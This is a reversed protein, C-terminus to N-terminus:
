PKKKARVARGGDTNVVIEAVQGADDLVFRGTMGPDNTFFATASEPYIDIEPGRVPRAVLHDERRAITLADVPGLVYQGVYRDLTATDVQAAEREPPLYDPWGYIVAIGNTIEAALRGGADGNTMVAAGQGGDFLAVLLCSFGRNQGGHSFRRANGEGAIFPGLGVAGGNQPTLMQEVMKQGLVKQPKGQRALQIEIAYRALDSPTTWLGAAGMEPYVNWKGAIPKGSGDHATAAQGRRGPPLPQEYTSAAMGVPGLVTDRMLEPFPRGTVDSLLLQEVTTGGGSYRFGHGPEKDVRVPKTNAPSAGDLIQPVTPLAADTAYGPFGHITLGATHSLIGRLDVAHKATFENEPVKWSKLDKNVDRDLDLVGADVLKLTAVATVPKSISAAQFLTDPTVPTGAEADAVGYGKAWDIKYDHIVAVSVGPVHHQAMREAISWPTTQGKVRVTQTLHTEVAAIREDITAPLGTARAAAVISVVAAFLGVSLVQRFAARISM